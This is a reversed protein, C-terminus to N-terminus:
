GNVRSQSRSTRAYALIIDQGRIITSTRGGGSNTARGGMSGVSHNPIISGSVAPVFLEPGNEGVLYPTNGSVPGGDKRAGIGKSVSSSLASGFAILAIGAPIMLAPNLSKLATKLAQIIPAAAIIEKGLAAFQEGIMSVFSSLVQGIDGGTLAAGIANGIATFGEVVSNYAGMSIAEGFKIGIARWEKEKELLKKAEIEVLTFDIGTLKHETARKFQDGYINGANFAESKVEDSFTTPIELDTNFLESLDLKKTPKLKIEKIKIDGLDEFNTTLKLLPALTAYLESKLNKIIAGFADFTGIAGKTALNQKQTALFGDNQAKNLGALGRQIVQDSSIKKINTNVSKENELRLEEQAKQVAIIRSATKEVEKQIEQQIGKVVAQRLLEDTLQQYAQSINNVTIGEEKLNPLYKGYQENLAQLAKRRNETSTATNEVMGVLTTLNVLESAVSQALKDNEEKAAKAGRTWASFGVQAFTIAATVASFALALGAGGSLGGVLASIAGKVSGTETKLRQFSQLLPDLNNAIGVFGYPSDSVVRNLNVFAASTNAITQPAKNFSNTFKRFSEETQGLSKAVGGGFSAVQQELKSLGAIAQSVDAGIQIQLGEAM